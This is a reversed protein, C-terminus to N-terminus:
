SWGFKAEVKLWYHGGTMHNKHLEFESMCYDCKWITGIPKVIAGWFPTRCEHKRKPKFIYTM